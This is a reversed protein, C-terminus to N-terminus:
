NFILFCNMLRPFTCKSLAQSWVCRFSSYIHLCHFSTVECREGPVHFVRVRSQPILCSVNLILALGANVAIGKVVDKLVWELECLCKCGSRQVKM